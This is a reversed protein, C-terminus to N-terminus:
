IKLFLGTVFVARISDPPVYVYPRGNSSISPDLEIEMKINTFFGKPPSFIPTLSPSEPSRIPSTEEQVIPSPPPTQLEKSFSPPPSLGSGEFIWPERLSQDLIPCITQLTPHSWILNLPIDIGLDQQMRFMLKTALSSDGGSEFFSENLGIPHGLVEEWIARTRKELNVDLSQQSSLQPPSRCLSMSSLDSSDCSALDPAPLKTQDVKGNRTLPMKSLRFFINPISNAPLKSKLYDRIENVDHNEETPVYYSILIKEETSDRRVITICTYVHRHSCMAADIVKLDVQM